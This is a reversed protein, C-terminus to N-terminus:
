ILRCLRKQLFRYAVESVEIMNRHVYIGKFTGIFNSLPLVLNTHM